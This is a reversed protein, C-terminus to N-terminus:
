SADKTLPHGLFDLTAAMSEPVSIWDGGAFGILLVTGQIQDGPLLAIDFHRLLKMAVPNVPSGAYKAEEHMVLEAQETLSITQVDGGVATQTGALKHEDDIALRTVEGAPTIKITDM